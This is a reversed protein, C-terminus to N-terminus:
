KIKKRRKKNRNQYNSAKVQSKREAKRREEEEISKKELYIVFVNLAALIFGCLIYFKDKTIIGLLLITLNLVMTVSFKNKTWFNKM